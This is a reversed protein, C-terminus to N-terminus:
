EVAALAHIMVRQDFTQQGRGHADLDAFRARMAALVENMQGVRRGVVLETAADLTQRVAEGGPTEGVGIHGANDELIVLNRVFVPGHGGSLNLLLSDYGAVPMVTMRVIKPFDPM